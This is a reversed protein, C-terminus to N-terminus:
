RKSIWIHLIQAFELPLLKAGLKNLSSVESPLFVIELGCEEIKKTM